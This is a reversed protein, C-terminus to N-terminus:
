PWLRWRDILIKAVPIKTFTSGVIFPERSEYLGSLMIKMGHIIDQPIDVRHVIGGSTYAANGSSTLLSFTNADSVSISWNGDANTNGGVSQVYVKDGTSFGHATATIAIPAANTAGTISVPTHAGFGCVFQIEIPASPYLSTSPYTNGYTPMIRGPDTETQVIYEDSDWTSQTGGTDKYKVHTISQLQGFPLIIDGIPWKELYLKYTQTVLRRGTIREVEGTIAAILGQIYADDDTHDVRLHKKAEDLTIPYYLPPTVLATNTTAM